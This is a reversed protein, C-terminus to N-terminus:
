ALFCRVQTLIAERCIPCRNTSARLKLREACTRCCAIHGCPQFCIEKTGELCVVCAASALAEQTKHQVAETELRELKNQMAHISAELQQLRIDELVGPREPM